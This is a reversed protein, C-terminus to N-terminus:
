RTFETNQRIRQELEGVNIGRAELIAAVHAPIPVGNLVAHRAIRQPDNWWDRLFENKNPFPAM